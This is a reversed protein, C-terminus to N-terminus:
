PLQPLGMAGKPLAQGNLSWQGSRLTLESSFVENELKLWPSRQALDVLGAYQASATATAGVNLAMGQLGQAAGQIRAVAVLLEQVAAGQGEFALRAQLAQIWAEVSQRRAAAEAAPGDLQLDLDLRLDRPQKVALALPEVRLSVTQNAMARGLAETAASTTGAAAPGQENLELLWANFAEGPLGDIAMVLELAPFAQGLVSAAAFELALDQAVIGPSSERTTTTLQWSPWRLEAGSAQLRLDTGRASLAGTWLESWRQQLDFDAQVGQAQIVYTAQPDRDEIRLFEQSWQGKAQRYEAGPASSASSSALSQAALGRMEMAVTGQGAAPEFRLEGLQVRHMPPAARGAEERLILDQLRLRGIAQGAANLLNGDYARSSAEITWDGAWSLGAMLRVWEVAPADPLRAALEPALALHGDIRALALGDATWPGHQVPIAGNVRLPPMEPTQWVPEWELDLHVQGSFLGREYDLRHVTLEPHQQWQAQLWNVREEVQQGVYQSVGLYAAGAVALIVATTKLARAM